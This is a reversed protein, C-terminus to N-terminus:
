EFIEIEFPIYGVGDGYETYDALVGSEDFTLVNFYTDSGSAFFNSVINTGLNEEGRINTFNFFVKTIDLLVGSFLIYYNGAANRNATIVYDTNNRL